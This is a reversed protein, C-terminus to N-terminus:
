VGLNFDQQKIPGAGPKTSWEDANRDTIYFCDYMGYKVPIQFEGPRTKWTKTKGNRRVEAQGRTNRKTRHYFRQATQATRYNVVGSADEVASADAHQHVFDVPDFDPEAELLSDVVQSAKSM